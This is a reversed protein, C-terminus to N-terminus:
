ETYASHLEPYIDINENTNGEQDFLGGWRPSTPEWIFTGLGMGNPINHVIDNVEKRNHHYEVVFIPKDYRTVLDNLNAELDELTGHYEPYYSQGIVDFKVNRSIIKDFFAVSEPNQGGCAIHVMITISPDAARVAASACRLLVSFSEMEEDSDVKEKGEPLKGQPWVMGNNIENGVQVMDPRVGEDIFRKITENTYSYIRGELASGHLEKWASPTFQKGPDAWTDSYHFDLLFNMGAAKVRKAMELTKELGCFGKGGRSYGNEADPDVFLRLRIWNFKHDKLIELVDKEQGQDSYKAGRDESQPVFSVDAGIVPREINVTREFPPEVKPQQDPNLNQEYVDDYLAFISESPKGEKDFMARTPEWAMTGYGLGNPVSRVIDNIIKINEESAGYENVCVPKNYRKSLDYLNAKLDNYTEHWREYYSLGIMDFEAGYQNMKDLFERCLTNQGGLALHVMLKSDPLVERVAKQGAKYLGMLAAWNEETANDLVRGDPWVMGHSIENGVQVIEPAVGEKKLTTLVEKTYEYLKDELAKGTLGEWASPKFQKDPDAWTDSYHFDLTFTMGAAKIRKAMALTNNLDCFGDKSYGNEASPDVFIRLRINDFHHKKLLDFIDTEKGETDYFSRGWSEMQPVFSIDAGISQSPADSTDITCGFLTLALLLVVSTNFKKWRIYSTMMNFLIKLEKM